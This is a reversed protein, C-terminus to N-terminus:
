KCRLYLNWIPPVTKILPFALCSATHGARGVLHLPWTHRHRDEQKVDKQQYQNRQHRPQEEGCSPHSHGLMDQTESRTWIPSKQSAARQVPVLTISLAPQGKSRRMAEGVVPNVAEPVTQAPPFGVPFPPKANRVMRPCEQGGGEVQDAGAGGPLWRGRWVGGLGCPFFGAVM